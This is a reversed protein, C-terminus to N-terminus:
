RQNFVVQLIQMNPGKFKYRKEKEEKEVTIPRRCQRAKGRKENKDPKTRIKDKEQKGKVESEVSTKAMLAFETPVEEDAVLAHDEQENGMFSESEVSTKAMLAFETPVEEDAVLAHDEQENGMFSTDDEFEPLGTWSIDKKPPSYVQTPLPPVVNYGLGEKNKDLRQSELLIDLDKSASHF